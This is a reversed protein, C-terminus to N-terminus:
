AYVTKRVRIVELIILPVFHVWAAVANNHVFIWHVLTAVAAVYVLKHLRRWGPGLRRVSVDNSTIALPLFIGFALWGTWIGLAGLEALMLALTEMDIVYFVTHLLAYAFAGVGFARRNKVLWQTWRADSWISRLPTAAMAIIMLRASFEGSGHLLDGAFADGFSLRYIMFAAPIALVAYLM